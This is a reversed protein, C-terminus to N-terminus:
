LVARVGAGVVGTIILEFSFGKVSSIQDNPYYVLGVPLEGRPLIKWLVAPAHTRRAKKHSKSAETSYLMGPHILLFNM